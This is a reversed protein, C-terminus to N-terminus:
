KNVSTFIFSGVGVSIPLNLSDVDNSQPIFISQGVNKFSEDLGSAENGYILSFKKSKPCDSISLTKDGDLMFPFMDRDKSYIESYEEFSNFVHFRIKFVAGMSARITKPNFIDACPAIIALDYISFGVLTRIITGLNGMDSPNVLVVHSLDKNLTYEFKDFIGCVFCNEKSSIRNIIKDNYLLDINNKKCVENFDASGSYKSHLVISRIKDKKSKILEMTPFAGLTYSYDFDKKYKKYDLAM